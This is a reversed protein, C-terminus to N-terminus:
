GKKMRAMKKARLDVANAAKRSQLFHYYSMGGKMMSNRRSQLRSFLWEHQRAYTQPPLQRIGEMLVDDTLKSQFAGIGDHWEQRSLGALLSHDFYWEKRNLQKLHKCKKRLGIIHQLVFPRVIKILLGSSCFLAQDHDRPIPYVITTDNHKEFEWKWQDGHRDWDGILMDLLRAQLLMQKDLRYKEPHKALDNYLSKTNKVKDDAHFTPARKELLCVTNAFLAHEPGLAADDPVFFVEPETSLVGLRM